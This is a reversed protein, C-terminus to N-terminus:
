RCDRLRSLIKQEYAFDRGVRYWQYNESVTPGVLEARRDVTPMGGFVAGGPLSNAPQALSELEKDVVVLVRYGGREATRIEATARVRITQFTALLRERADPSGGRFFQEYGPSIRWDTVIRGDYRDAVVVPFDDDVVDLVREFVEAYSAATPAGPSLLLPNECDKNPPRVLVPNDVPPATACGALGVAVAWGAWAARGM